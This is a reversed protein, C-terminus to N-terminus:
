GEPTAVDVVVQTPSGVFRASSRTISVRLTDSLRQNCTDSPVVLAPRVKAGTRDRFPWDILVIDGRQLTM